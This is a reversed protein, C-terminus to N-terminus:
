TRRELACGALRSMKLLPVSRMESKPQACAKSGLAGICNVGGFLAGEDDKDDDDDVVDDAGIIVGREDM